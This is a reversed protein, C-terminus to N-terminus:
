LASSPSCSVLKLCDGNMLSGTVACRKRCAIYRPAPTSFGTTLHKSLPSRHVRRNPAGASCRSYSILPRQRKSRLVVPCSRPGRMKRSSPWKRCRSEHIKYIHGSKRSVEKLKWIQSPPLELSSRRARPEVCVSLAEICLSPRRHGYPM